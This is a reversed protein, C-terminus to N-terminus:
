FLAFAHCLHYSSTTHDVRQDSQRINMDINDIVLVFGQTVHLVMHRRVLWRCPKMQIQVRHVNCQINAGMGNVEIGDMVEDGQITTEMKGAECRTEEGNLVNHQINTEM